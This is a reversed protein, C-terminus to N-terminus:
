AEQLRKEKERSLSKHQSKHVIKLRTALPKIEKERTRTTPRLLMKPTKARALQRGNPAKKELTTMRAGEIAEEQNTMRKTISNSTKPPSPESLKLMGINNSPLVQTPDPEEEEAEEEETIVEAELAEGEAM